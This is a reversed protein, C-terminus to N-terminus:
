RKLNEKIREEPDELPPLPMSERSLREYIEIYRRALEIRMDEPAEPIVEDEYPDCQEKFWLRLFEKDFYEPEKGAAMREEYSDANWYRSSDQTHVEDILTLEGASDYGFEYKTDVLILGAKAAIDQGRSFLKLAVEYMEDWQEQTLYNESVIQAFTVNEDHEDSKTTPTVIPHDLQENKVMGDPLMFDSFDRQGGSYRTWLSTGTVGTIYGRVVVEIPAVSCKKCVVVNPDPNEIIHNKIIDETQKFNFLSTQTLVQGKLPILALNRDFASYRDTAILYLYDGNDYIDRVKGQRRKGLFDFNTKELAYPLYKKITESTTM